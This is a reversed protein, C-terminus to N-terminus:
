PSLEALAQDLMKSLKEQEYDPPNPSTSWDFIVNTWLVDGSDADVMTVFLDASGTSSAYGGFMAKALYEGAVSGGSRKWGAFRTLVLVDASAADAIPQVGAGLSFEIQGSNPMAMAASGYAAERVTTALHEVEPAYVDSKNVVHVEFGRDTLRDALLRDLDDGIRLAHEELPGDAGNQGLAFHAVAPVVAMTRISQSRAAFEADQRALLLPESACAGLMLAIAAPWMVNTRSYNIKNM